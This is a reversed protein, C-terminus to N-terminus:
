RRTLILSDDFDFTTMRVATDPKSKQSKAFDELGKTKHCITCELEVLHQGTCTQCNIAATQRGTQHIQSRLDTLQKTSYKTPPLNKYCRGCKIKPPVPIGKLRHVHHTLM